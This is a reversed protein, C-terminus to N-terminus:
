PQPDTEQLNHPDDAPMQLTPRSSFDVQSDDLVEAPSPLLDEIGCELAIALAYLTGLRVGEQRVSNEISWMRSKPDADVFGARAGLELLTFGREKRKAMIKAGMLRAATRNLELIPTSRLRAVALRNGRNKHIRRVNGHADIYKAVVKPNKNVM